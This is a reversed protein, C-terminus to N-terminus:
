NCQSPPYLFDNEFVVPYLNENKIKDLDFNHISFEDKPIAFICAQHYRTNNKSVSAENIISQLYIGSGTRGPRQAIIHLIKKNENIM